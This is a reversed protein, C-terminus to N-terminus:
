QMVFATFLVDELQSKGAMKNLVEATADLMSTQLARKGEATKLRDAGAASITMLLSNIIMPEHKKLTEMTQDDTLLFAVKVEILNAGSGKPFNVRLPKNIEYYTYVKKDQEAGESVQGAQAGETNDNLLPNNPMMFFAAIGGVIILLLIVIIIILIKSSNKQNEEGAQTAEAM